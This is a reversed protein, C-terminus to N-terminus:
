ILYLLITPILLCGMMNTKRVECSICYIGTITSIILVLLGLIGSVFYVVVILILLIAISIKSYNIKSINRSFFKALSKTIFFSFIGSILVAILILVLVNIELTGIIGQIAAAAGTRTKSIAYLSIFSIGMVLINTAGLMVLFGKDDTKLVVSGITAAQSSGLGPLFGCAPSAILSSLLPRALKTEPKTIIQEPIQVKNKISTIIMSSGFLGSLLPLLPQKLETMNLIIMGLFGTLLFVVLAQFKNKESLILISSTIILIYPIFIKIPEYVKSIFFTLPFALFIFILVAALGGYSTLLIAEYGKGEKLLKHGPLISLGTDENPCGLFISPVFDVFTHTIAVATIFVVLYIPNISSLLSLSASVLFAGVLNIHIGPTLGTLAGVLIGIFLSLFLYLLM